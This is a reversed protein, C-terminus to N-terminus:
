DDFFDPWECELVQAMRKAIEISPKCSGVEYASIAQRTLGLASALEDQTIGKAERIQKVKNMTDDGKQKCTYSAKSDIILKDLIFDLAVQSMEM